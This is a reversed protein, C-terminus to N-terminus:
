YKWFSLCREWFFFFFFSFSTRALICKWLWSSPDLEVFARNFVAHFLCGPCRSCGPYLASFPPFALGSSIRIATTYRLRAFHVLMSAASPFSRVTHLRYLSVRELSYTGLPGLLFGDRSKKEYRKTGKKKRKGWKRKGRQNGRANWRVARRWDTKRADWPRSEKSRKPLFRSPHFFNRPVSRGARVSFKM